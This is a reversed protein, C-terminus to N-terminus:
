WRKRTPTIGSDDKVQRSARSRSRNREQHPWAPILPKTNRWAPILATGTQGRPRPQRISAEQREHAAPYMSTHMSRPWEHFSRCHPCIQLNCKGAVHPKHSTENAITANTHKNIGKLRNTAATSEIQVIYSIFAQLLDDRCEFNTFDQLGRQVITRLRHICGFEQSIVMKFLSRKKRKSMTAQEATFMYTEAWSWLCRNADQESMPQFEDSMQMRVHRLQSLSDRLCTNSAHNIAHREPLARSFAEIQESLGKSLRVTNSQLADYLRRCLSYSFWGLGFSSLMTTAGHMTQIDNPDKLQPESAEAFPIAVDSAAQAGFPMTRKQMGIGQGVLSSLGKSPSHVAHLVADTPYQHRNHSSREPADAPGSIAVPKIEIIFPSLM